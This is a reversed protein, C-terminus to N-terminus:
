ENAGGTRTPDELRLAAIVDDPIPSSAGLLAVLAESAPKSLTGEALLNAGFASKLDAALGKRLDTPSASAQGEGAKAIEDPM